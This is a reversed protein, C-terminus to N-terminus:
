SSGSRLRRAHSRGAAETSSGAREEGHLGALRDGPTAAMALLGTLVFALLTATGQELM